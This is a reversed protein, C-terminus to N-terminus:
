QFGAIATKERYVVVNNSNNNNNNDNTSIHLCVFFIVGTIVCSMSEVLLVTELVFSPMFFYIHESSLVITGLYESFQFLTPVVTKSQKYQEAYHSTEAITKVFEKSFFATTLSHV